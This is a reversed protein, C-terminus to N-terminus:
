SLLYVYQIKTPYSKYFDELDRQATDLNPLLAQCLHSLDTIDFTIDYQEKLYVMSVATTIGIVNNSNKPYQKIRNILSILNTKLVQAVIKNFDEISSWLKEHMYYFKRLGQVIDSFRLILEEGRINNIDAFLGRMFEKMALEADTLLMKQYEDNGMWKTVKKLGKHIWKSLVNKDKDKEDLPEGQVVGDYIHYMYSLKGRKARLVGEYEVFGDEFERKFVHEEAM